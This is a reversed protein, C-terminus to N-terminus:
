VLFRTTTLVPDNESGPRRFIPAVFSVVPEQELARMSREVGGNGSARYVQLGYHAVFSVPESDRSLFQRAPASLQPSDCRHGARYRVAYENPVRRLQVRRGKANDHFEGGADRAAPATKDVRDSKKEGRGSSRSSRSHGSDGM